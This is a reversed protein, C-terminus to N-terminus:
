RGTKLRELRAPLKSVVLDRSAADLKLWNSIEGITRGCGRCIGAAEELECISICPSFPRDDTGHQDDQSMFKEDNSNKLGSLPLTGDAFNAEV